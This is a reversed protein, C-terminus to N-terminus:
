CSTLVEDDIREPLDDHSVAKEAEAAEMEAREREYIVRSEEKTYIQTYKMYDIGRICKCDYEESYHFPPQPYNFDPILLKLVRGIEVIFVYCASIGPYGFVAEIENDRLFNDVLELKDHCSGGAGLNYSCYGFAAAFLVALIFDRDNPEVNNPHEKCYKYLDVVQRPRIVIDEDYNHYRQTGEIISQTSMLNININNIIYDRIADFYESYPKADERVLQKFEKFPTNEPVLIANYTTAM